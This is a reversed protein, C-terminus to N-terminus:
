SNSENRKFNENEQIISITQCIFNVIIEWPKSDLYEQATKKSKFTKESVICNGAAIQYKNNTKVFVFPFTNSQEVTTTITKEEQPNM